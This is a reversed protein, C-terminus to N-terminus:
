VCVCVCVFMCVCVGSDVVVAAVAACAVAGAARASANALGGGSIGHRSALKRRPLDLLWCRCNALPLHRSLLVADSLTLGCRLQFM